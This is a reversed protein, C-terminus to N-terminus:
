SWSKQERRSMYKNLLSAEEEILLPTTGGAYVSHKNWWVGTWDLLNSSTRELV